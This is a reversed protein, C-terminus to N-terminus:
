RFFDFEDAAFAIDIQFLERQPAQLGQEDAIVLYYTATNSYKLSKLNFQCRFTREAGNGSTKDAIIKQVDSIQRGNEDTFYVQYAAAERNAGVADKQYFNLSFIMNSIKRSASLLHVTVPKTDYKQKNRKYEMSDNRLYHYEIVPVVMEQLSIGGHVFNMGGGNMKIRISERPAFGAFETKGDLFKIPLLYNPQAGKQMIAYRRGYEVCRRASERKLAGANEKDVDYFENRGVKDDETLPSYTYLFGHDATILINAGGFENVIIRVLNKLESIAKDCAAFVATDSTHSAEDITDHYIYVVNMGKVLASREARKMAIMDNYKLAASAPDEMKLIKDRYGSATPRGDALVTLLNNRLEATLEKHPLLAAMGFKTISPFISQMSSVSVKSQTERRLQDAMAAAVEYRMADSIIVFVKTDLTKVRSRYFEEQQPVGLVKGCAALEEACVDSWNSGLEGLFWHTYLGEVKDAVRKFLDDLLANSTELSKQFSLHFLRYYTDMQYYSETYENWIDKAEAAHFGASHKKFFRQMNAAQLIGNYFNEFPEYWACTRRKEVAATIADVDIIQDSIETMLKTLIVENICPFCETGALDDVTLKAFRQRLRAEDEVYRAVDYLQGIDGGHLWESIFDYCYAQHPMSIFGDLGALYEQRMTRTAATLLVHIALRGLDPEEEAFGCGQRVMAWFAGDAHYKVFDQCVANNHLDLGARFVSLLIRNPQADKLGCIAAMVAMHLQAPTAPVKNQARVKLRRDKANFYARYNKVQKRMAPNPALGMEDMWISILDARFEESYLQIDLLWNDDPRNYTLPSYVLYNTTLDEVSLLKKVSFANNGTLAVVKANELVVEDLKDAFEKDEDRWFIIRRKYFEPLPAAFRRNLDQIVKDTDM